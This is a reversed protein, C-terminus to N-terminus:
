KSGDSYGKEYGVFEGDSYGTWYGVSHGASYGEDYNRQAHEDFLVVLEGMTIQRAFVFENTLINELLYSCGSLDKQEGRYIRELDSDRWSSQYVAIQSTQGWLNLDIVYRNDITPPDENYWWESWTQENQKLSFVMWISDDELVLIDKDEFAIHYNLYNWKIDENSFSYLNFAYLGLFVFMLKSFLKSM